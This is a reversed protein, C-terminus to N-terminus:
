PESAAHARLPRRAQSEVHSRLVNPMGRRAVARGLLERLAGAAQAYTPDLRLAERLLSIAEDRRGQQLRAIALNFRATARSPDLRAAEEFLVAAGITDGRSARMLGLKETVEADGPALRRHEALLWEALATQRAEVSALARARLLPLGERPVGAALVERARSQQGAQWLALSLDLRVRDPRVGARDAQELLPVAEGGKGQSLLVGALAFSVDAVDPALRHAERLAREADTLQNRAQWALGARFWPVGPAPHRAVARDLWARGEDDRGDDIAHLAMRTDADAEGLHFPLPVLGGALVVGAVAIAAFAGSGQPPQGSSRRMSALIGVFIAGLVLAPARYRDVVFFIAVSALYAPLLWRFWRWAGQTSRPVACIGASSQRM